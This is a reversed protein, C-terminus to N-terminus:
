LSLRGMCTQGSGLDRARVRVRWTQGTRNSDVEVGDGTVLLATGPVTVAIATRM